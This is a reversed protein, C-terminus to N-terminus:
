RHICMLPQGQPLRQPDHRVLDPLLRRFLEPLLLRFVPRDPLHTYDSYQLMRAAHRCKERQIYQQVTVGESQHFLRSLYTRGLGIADYDSSPGSLLTKITEVDGQKVASIM